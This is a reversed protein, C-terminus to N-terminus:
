GVLIWDGVWQHRTYNYLRKYTKGNETKFRWRIDDAHPQIDSASVIMANNFYSIPATTILLLLALTACKALRSIKKM